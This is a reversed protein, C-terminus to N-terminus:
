TRKLKLLFFSLLFISAPIIYWPINNHPAFGTNPLSPGGALVTVGYNGISCGNTAAVQVWISQNYPLNNLTTSFGTVNTNYQWNGNEL